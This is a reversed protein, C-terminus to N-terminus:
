GAPSGLRAEMARLERLLLNRNWRQWFWLKTLGIQLWGWLFLAAFLVLNRTSEVTFFKVAAWVMVAFSGLGYVWVFVNIWCMPGRFADALVTRISEDPPAAPPPAAQPASAQSENM